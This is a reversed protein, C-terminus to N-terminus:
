KGFRRQRSAYDALAKDLDGATYAPWDKDVFNLEAYAARWLMFGSLRQEGSTRIVLDVPPVEPAYLHQAISESTVSSAEVGSAVIAAVAEVLEQEGGYNLCLVLTGSTYESTREELQDIINLLRTSLGDRSGALRFRVKRSEFEAFENVLFGYFLEMLYGVEETTRKWNEQSFAYMTFVKIGRDFAAIGIDRAVKLGQRHGELSPRGQAVAWRRNGDPIIGLHFPVISSDSTTHTNM